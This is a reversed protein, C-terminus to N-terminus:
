TSASLSQVKACILILKYTVKASEFVKPKLANKGKNGLQNTIHVARISHVKNLRWSALSTHEKKPFLGLKWLVIEIRLGPM